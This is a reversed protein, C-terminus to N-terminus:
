ILFWRNQVEAHPPFLMQAIPSSPLCELKVDTVDQGARGGVGKSLLTHLASQDYRRVPGALVPNELDALRCGQDVRRCKRGLSSGGPNLNILFLGVFVLVLKPYLKKSTAALNSFFYLIQPLKWNLLGCLLLTITVGHVTQSNYM